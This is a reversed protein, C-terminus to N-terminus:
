RHALVAVHVQAAGATRVAAAVADATAGTTLVDDVLLVRLDKVAALTTHRFAGAVNRRREAASVATQKPTPRVRRVARTVLPLRLEEAIGRAVSEAQNYGRTLRRRWHLPVPIVVQPGDKEWRQRLKYAFITGLAEALADGAVHKIRLVAERLRGDYVGLRTASDFRVVEDHCRLCGASTDTHPGVSSSCRPCTRHPDTSLAAVCASCLCVGAPDAMRTECLLCARPWVWDTAAFWARRLYPLPM